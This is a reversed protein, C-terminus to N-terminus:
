WVEQNARAAELIQTKTLEMLPIGGVEAAKAFNGDRQITKPSVGYQDALIDRAWIPSDNQGASKQDGHGGDKRKVANYRKGRLISQQWPALNRRGLQNDIIWNIAEGRNAFNIEKVHYTFNHDTCIMYRNHGDIIIGNWTVIPDRCGDRVINAELQKYEEPALPFILSHFEDDITLNIVM